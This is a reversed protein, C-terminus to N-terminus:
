APENKRPGRTQFHAKIVNTPKSFDGNQYVEISNPQKSSLQPVLRVCFREDKTFKISKIAEKPTKRWQFKALTKGNSADL